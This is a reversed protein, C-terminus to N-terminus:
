LFRALVGNVFKHSKEESYAKALQVAENISVKNPIDELYLIEFISLRLICLNLKSIRNLKWNKLNEEIKTDLEAQKEIVGNVITDIYEFDVNKLEQEDIIENLNEKVSKYDEKNINMQYLIKMAIERSKKRNM